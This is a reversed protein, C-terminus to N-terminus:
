ELVSPNSSVVEEMRSTKRFLIDDNYVSLNIIYISDNMSKIWDEIQERDLIKPFEESLYCFSTSSLRQCSYIMYPDDTYIFLSPLKHIVNFLSDLEQNTDFITHPLKDLEKNELGKTVQETVSQPPIPLRSLAACAIKSAM